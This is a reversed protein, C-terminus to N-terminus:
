RTRERADRDLSSRLRDISQRLSGIELAMDHLRRNTEDRQSKLVAVELKTATTERMAEEASGKVSIVGWGAAIVLAGLGVTRFWKGLSDGNSGNGIVTSM